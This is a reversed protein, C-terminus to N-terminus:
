NSLMRQSEKNRRNVPPYYYDAWCILAWNEKMRQRGTQVGIRQAEDKRVGIQSCVGLTTGESICNCKNRM